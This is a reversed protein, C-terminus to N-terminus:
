YQRFSFSIKQTGSLLTEIWADLRIVVVVLLGQGARPGLDPLGAM